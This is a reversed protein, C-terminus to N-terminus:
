INGINTSNLVYQVFRYFIYPVLNLNWFYGVILGYKKYVQLSFEKKWLMAKTIDTLSEFNIKEYIYKAPFANLTLILIYWM